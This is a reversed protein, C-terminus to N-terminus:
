KMIKRRTQRADDILRTNGQPSHEARVCATYLLTELKQSRARFSEIDVIKKPRTIDWGACM